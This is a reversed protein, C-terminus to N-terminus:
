KPKKEEWILKKPPSLSKALMSEVMGAAKLVSEISFPPLQTDQGDEDDDLYGALYRESPTKIDLRMCVLWSGCEAEFERTNESKGRRDPWDEFDASPRGLHGCFLHGLEHAITACKEEITHNVNVVLNYCQKVLVVGKDKEM